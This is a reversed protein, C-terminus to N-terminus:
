ARKEGTQSTKEGIRARKERIQQALSNQDKIKLLGKTRITYINSEMIQSPSCFFLGYICM